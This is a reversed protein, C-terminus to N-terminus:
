CASFGGCTFLVINSSPDILHTTHTKIKRTRTEKAKEHPTPAIIPSGLSDVDDKVTMGRWGKKKDVLASKSGRREKEDVGDSVVTVM